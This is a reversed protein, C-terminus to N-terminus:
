QKLYAKMHEESLKSYEEAKKKDGKLDYIKAIMAEKAGRRTEPLEEIQQLLRELSDTKHDLYIDYSDNVIEKIGELNDDKKSTLENIRDRYLQCRQKDGRGLFYDFASLYVERAQPYTLRRNAFTDYCEIIKDTEGALSYRSLKLYDQNFPAITWKVAKKEILRDFEDYDGKMLATTLRDFMMRQLLISGGQIVLTSVVIIIVMLVERRM